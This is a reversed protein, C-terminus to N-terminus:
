NGNPSENKKTNKGIQERQVIIERKFTMTRVPDESAQWAYQQSSNM